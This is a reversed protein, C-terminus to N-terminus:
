PHHTYGEFLVGYTEDVNRNCIKWQNTRPSVVFVLGRGTSRSRSRWATTSREGPTPLNPIPSRRRRSTSSNASRRTYQAGIGARARQAAKTEIHFFENPHYGSRKKDSNTEVWGSTSDRFDEQVFVGARFHSSSRAFGPCGTKTYEGFAVPAAPDVETAACRFGTIKVSNSASPDVPLRTVNKDSTDTRAAACCRRPPPSDHTTPTEGVWEWVNGTMDFVGFASQNGEISGVPYTGETPLAVQTLDNGWPFLLANPGRAAVEWEVETPLRKGVATCYAQAWDFNVGQVPHNARDAPYEARRGHLPRTGRGDSRRLHRLGRQHGRVQRDLVRCGRRKKTVTESTNNEPKDAGVAYTGAPIPVMNIGSAKVTPVATAAVVTVASSAATASTASPQSQTSIAEKEGGGNMAVYVGGGLLLAGAAAAAVLKGRGSRLPASPLTVDVAATAAMAPKAVEYVPAPAQIVPPEIHRFPEPAPAPPPEYAAVPAPVPAPPPAPPAISVEPGAVPMAVPAPPPAPPAQVPPEISIPMSVVRDSDARTAAVIAAGRAVAYLPDVDTAVIPGFRERLMSGVLPIRSSGGVLLVAALQEAGVGAAGLATHLALVSDDIRPSIMHEFESRQLVVTTDVGPLMVPISATQETSLLEKAETCSRRLHLMPAPLSPDDPDSPWRNGVAQRVYQFIAEDFDVGGLHEIGVSDALMEFGTETKRLVAADFTGGGLDYVAIISGAAVRTQAAYAVAAAQPEPLLSSPVDVMRLSQEFLELKYPGWNAPHTAVLHRPLGRERDAVRQVVHDLVRGMLAEASFPSTRLILPTPDGMRRKFERAAGPPDISARRNAADGVLMPGDDGLYLVTPINDAIPGLGAVEVAGGTRHVAAATFSTGVDIGLEYTVNIM